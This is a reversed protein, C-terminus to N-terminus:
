KDKKELLLKKQYELEALHIQHYTPEYETLRNFMRNFINVLDGYRSGSNCFRISITGPIHNKAEEPSLNPRTFELLIGEEIQTIRIIDATEMPADDSHWTISNDKTLEKYEFSNQIKKNQKKACEVRYAQTLSAEDEEDLSFPDVDYIDCIYFEDYFTPELVVEEPLYIQGSQAERMLSEFLNYITYNEKTILMSEYVDQTSSVNERRSKKNIFQWYLDLNGGYMIKLCNDEQQLYYAEGFEYEEKTVKM